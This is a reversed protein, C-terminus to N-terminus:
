NSAHDFVITVGSGLNVNFVTKTKVEKLLVDFDRGVTPWRPDYLTEMKGRVRKNGDKEYVEYLANFNSGYKNPKSESLFLNETM